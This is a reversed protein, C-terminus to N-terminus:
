DENSHEYYFKDKEMKETYEHDGCWAASDMHPQCWKDNESNRHRFKKPSHRRCIVFEDGYEYRNLLGYRCNVCCLDIM